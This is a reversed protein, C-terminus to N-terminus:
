NRFMPIREVMEKFPINRLGYSKAKPIITFVAYSQKPDGFPKETKGFANFFEDMRM